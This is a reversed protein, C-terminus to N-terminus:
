PTTSSGIGTARAYQRFVDNQAREMANLIDFAYGLASREIDAFVVMFAADSVTGHIAVSRGLQYHSRDRCFGM